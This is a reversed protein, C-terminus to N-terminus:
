PYLHSALHKNKLSDINKSGSGWCAIKLEVKLQEVAEICAQESQRAFPLIHGAIGCISAGLALSKAIDLGNRIGGSAVIPLSFGNKSLENVLIPTSKGWESFVQAALALRQNSSMAGEISIFDTGGKGAVDVAAAGAAQCQQAAELGLGMGVEKVIVPVPCAEICARLIDTSRRWETDGNDQFVEQMPNLHVFMADANIREACLGLISTDNWKILNALGVNGFLPAKGAMPRISKTLGSDREHEISVRQSGVALAIGCEKAAVALNANIFDAEATGGTMSSILIPASLPFNLFQSALSISEFNFNPLACHELYLKDFDSSATKSQSAALEIHSKKRDM